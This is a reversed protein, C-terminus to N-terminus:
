SRVPRRDYERADIAFGHVAALERMRRVRYSTLRGYSSPCEAGAFGLLITEALCGYIESSAMRMAPVDLTQGLPAWVRGGRIVVVDPREFVVRPDVDQPVAVDCIVIPGAGLHEPLIIPRPASTCSAIVNCERLVGLSTTIRVPAREGLEDTLGEYLAAGLAAPDLREDRELRRATRTDSISGAIGSVIGRTFRRFARAYIGHALPLLFRESRAHGVLVIEGAEDAAIEALVAGVNGGAGVVAMRSRQLDLGMRTATERCGEIAAAVTLSNGSTVTMDLEVIERCNDTVISTHGGLGVVTCDHARALAVGRKVLDLAWDDGARLSAVAQQATFPVGIFTVDVHTGQESRMEARDLVFPELTGHTRDLFRECDADTFSALGSEWARLDAPEAFHVLFAVRTADPRQASPALKAAPPRSGITQPAARRGCLHAALAGVDSSQLRACLSEVARGLQEIEDDTVFASPEVRLVASKSLTPAVRIGHERLLYGCAIYGVLGQDSLVQMLPSADHQPVLEVGIMLGRGRVERIQGPFRARVQELRERLKEGQRRCRTMLAGQDRELIDLARLAVISSLDDEAFTSTHLYGFDPVYRDRAVLLAAIKTLGGGLAKSFLYYDGAIGLRESALFDGTRGMGSQIEDLVIPCGAADALERLTRAFAPSIEHIGGEGQLPEVFIAAVNTFSREELGLTGAASVAITFYRERLELLAARAAESDDFPLFLTGDGLRSWPGRFELRHTLKLAGTSKGHFSGAVAVFTPPRRVLQDFRRRLTDLLEDLSEIREGLQRTADEYLASGVRVRGGRIDLRLRKGDEDMRALQRENRRVTELEAHKIAAEVAEAGTSSLTAIYSRGTTREVLSSLREALLGARGRISAQAHFPRQQDLVQRVVDVLEPHNHGFLAAGFGGIFDTVEIEGDAGDYYLRTGAARHYHVDLGFAELLHALHPKLSEAYATRFRDDPRGIGHENM